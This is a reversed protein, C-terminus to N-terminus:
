WKRGSTWANPNKNVVDPKFVSGRGLSAWEAAAVEGRKRRARVSTDDQRETYGQDQVLRHVHVCVRATDDSHFGRRMGKKSNFIRDNKPDRELHVLEYIAAGAATMYPPDVIAKGDATLEGVAPPLMRLYGSYGDRLFQIFHENTTIEEEAWLGLDDRLRQVITTSNWHDFGVHKIIVQQSMDRLMRYVSEFYVEQKASRTLLRIIWDYVTVTNGDADTEGHACAVSFADFNKGADVAVFRPTSRVLLAAKTVEVELLDRGLSDTRENTHFWATPKLTMDVASAIFDRPRDVFPNAAGPPEAGFNRMTGVYDKKILDEYASKPEAPNFDWTAYRVAYMRRDSKSAELLQMGYDDIAFPSSISGIMGLWPVLGYKDVRTQVTQCSAIMTRYVEMGSRNGETKDMRCIEDIGAFLRTRGALGNSNSNLSDINVRALDNRILKASEAYEWKQMGAPTDQLAEQTSVWPTYRKFWPSQARFGRYKAWITLKSQTDTSAVYSIDFTDGAPTALYGPLGGPYGHAITLLVHEIYTGVQALVTSKGARQGVIAHLVRYNNFTGREVLEARTIGCKPCTDDEHRPSWVLLVESELVARSLCTEPKGPVWATSPVASPGSNCDPCRLEFFDKVLTYAGSFEFLTPQNLFEPRIIWEIANPARQTLYAREEDIKESLAVSKSVIDYIDLGLHPAHIRPKAKGRRVSTAM